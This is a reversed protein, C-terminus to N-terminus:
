VILAKTLNVVIIDDIYLYFFVSKDKNIFCCIDVVFTEFGYKKLVPVITDYWWKSSSYLSYLAKKFLCIYNIGDDLSYLQRIYIIVGKPIDANFYVAIIDFVEVELDYIEIFIYIIRLTSSYVAASYFM